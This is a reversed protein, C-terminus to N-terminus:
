SRVELFHNSEGRREAGTVQYANGSWCAIKGLMLAVVLAALQKAL